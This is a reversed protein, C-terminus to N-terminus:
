LERASYGTSTSPNYVDSFDFRHSVDRAVADNETYQLSVDESKSKTRYYIVGAAIALVALVAVVVGAIIGTSSSSDSSSSESSGKVVVDNSGSSSQSIISTASLTYGPYGNDALTKSVTGDTLADDLTKKMDNADTTTIANFTIKATGEALLQRRFNGFNIGSFM